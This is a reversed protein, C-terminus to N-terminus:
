GCTPRESPALRTVEGASISYGIPEASAPVPHPKGDILLVVHSDGLDIKFHRARYRRGAVGNGEAGEEPTLIAGPILRKGDGLLCVWVRASPRLALTVFPTATSQTSTTTTSLASASRATRRSGAASRRGRAAARAGSPRRQESSGNLSGILVLLLILALLAGGIVYGRPLPAREGARRGARRSPPHRLERREHEPGEYRARYEEVIARGDLGLAQAYTRLFSKIYTPGPLLSWEENELARLYKARIKTKAEIESVDIRARMRAERLTQGIESM